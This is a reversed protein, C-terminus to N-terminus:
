SSAELMESAPNYYGDAKAAVGDLGRGADSPRKMLGFTGDAIATLLPAKGSSDTDGAIRELLDITEGLM